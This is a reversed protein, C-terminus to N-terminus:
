GLRRPLLVRFTAGEGPGTDVSVRGGHGAVIASVISLGLGTGGAARSRSPDVRYFREFVRRAQEESLGPGRDIVEVMAYREDDPRVGVRIVVPTDDPTHKLANGVLNGLVQRLRAEDGDVVVKDETTELSVDRDPAVVAADGVADRALPVLDVPAHEMPRERDLRALLLLDDVLLGMRTSEDEIRRMVRAVDAPTSAAGQRYLESFGRISTLPTRLEHSADAVFQRMRGESALAAAESDQRARFADEIQTLMSNLAGALRGVETRRDREKVRRSLDGAAIAAATSEVEVLPRLSTRVLVYGLGGVLVLVAAGVVVVIAILRRLTNDVDALDFGVTVTGSGDSLPTVLVRYRTSGDVSGTTFPTGALNMARRMDMDPLRPPSMNPGVLRTTQGGQSDSILVVYSTPLRPGVAGPMVTRREALAVLQHSTQLLQSDVREYLYTRLATVAAGGTVGLGVAALLVVAVVLKVRLPWASPSPLHRGIRGAVGAVRAAAM